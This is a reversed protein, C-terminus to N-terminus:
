KLDATKVKDAAPLKARAAANLQRLEALKHQIKIELGRAVPKYYVCDPMDDPFYRMGAAFADAEAHAYRYDAAYGLSKDLATTANRLALPVPKQGYATVDACAAGYASYVANSKAACACYVIAQAIMMDGEPSGLRDYSQWADLAIQAARPDALGIDEYAMRLVRRALYQVDCGGDVMRAYWYLAADPDSGRVSKHLASIQQYFADGKHDFHRCVQAMVAEVQAEDLQYKGAADLRAFDSMIELINLLQRADGDAARVLKQGLAPPLELELSGLGREADTLAQTLVHNLDTETLAQLVYVRCRSLLANQLQFSPNETTAGLLIIDGQEVHPLFADQQAKNFRHVEDVFLITAQGCSARQARAQAVMERIDKVGALVASLQRFSAGCAQGLLRALTTKGCGPPGWLIMSHLRQQAVAQRLPRGAALLHAQGVYEDLNRPRMRAALPQQSIAAQRTNAEPTEAAMMQLLDTM